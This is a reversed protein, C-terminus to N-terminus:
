ILTPGSFYRKFTVRSAAVQRANIVVKVPPTTINTTVSLDKDKVAQRTELAAGTTAKAAAIQRELKAIQSAAHRDGHSLLNREITKLDAMKRSTSEGGRAIKQANTLQGHVWERNPLKAQVGKIAARLIAATKPDHTQALKIRLDKLVGKTGAVSGAGKAVDAAIARAFKAVDAPKTSQRLSRLDVGFKQALASIHRAIAASVVQGNAGILTGTRNEAAEIRRANIEADKNIRNANDVLSQRNEAAETRRANMEASPAAHAGARAAATKQLEDFSMPGFLHFQDQLADAVGKEIAIGAAVPLVVQAGSKILGGIGGGGAGPVGLGGGVQAVWMPNAPSSGRSAFQNLLAGGIDKAISTGLGGTVKNLAFGAIVLKQLDAPLSRFAGIVDKAIEGSLKLGDIFPQWDVKQVADALKQFETAIKGAFDQLKGQTTPLNLFDNFKKILPTLKPLLATGITIGADKVGAKLINLQYNLGQQREAMQAAAVGSAEGMKKLEAAFGAAQPGTTQLAYKVAEIRPLMDNLPIKNKAAYTVIEQLAPVLGKKRIENEWNVGLKKGAAALEASPNILSIIARQMETTVEAAPVGQATLYAYSAAIQDIGVGYAKAVSAVDAFSAAIQDAHVVGDAIAQAFQDTAKQAGAADLGYANIATSLLNVTEATTALGGIGLAVANNLTKTALEGKIGASALDYYASTLDDLSVGTERATKRLTDGIRGIDKRDVITAITNMQAEFDGAAKAVAIFGGAAAAAGLAIGRELNQGLKGLSRQTNGTAKDFGKIARAAEGLKANINGKLDLEVVLKQTEAFAV